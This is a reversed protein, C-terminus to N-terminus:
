LELRAWVIKGTEDDAAPSLGWSMSVREVLEMGWGGVQGPLPHGRVEPLEVAGDSVAVKLEQTADIDVILRIPSSGHVIANTVLESVILMASEVAPRDLNIGRGVMEAALARRAEGPSSLECPLEVTFGTM